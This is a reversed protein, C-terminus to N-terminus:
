LIGAKSLLVGYFVALTFFAGAGTVVASVQVSLQAPDARVWRYIRREPRGFLQDQRRRVVLWSALACYIGSGLVIWAFTQYLWQDDITFSVVFALSAAWVALLNFDYLQGIDHPLPRQDLLLYGAWLLLAAPIVLALQAGAIFLANRWAVPKTPGGFAAAAIVVGASVVVYAVILGAAANVSVKAWFGGRRFAETLPHRGKYDPSM